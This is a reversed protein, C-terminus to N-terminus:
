DFYGVRIVKDILRNSSYKGLKYYELEGESLSYVAKDLLVVEEVDSNILIDEKAGIKLANLDNNGKIYIVYRDDNSIKIHELNSDLEITVKDNLLYSTNEENNFVIAEGSKSMAVLKVSSALSITSEIVGKNFIGKSLEDSMVYYIIMNDESLYFEDFSLSIDTSEDADISLYSNSNDRNTLFIVETNSDLYQIKKLKEEFNNIGVISAGEFIKDVSERKSKLINLANNRSQIIIIDESDPTLIINNVNRAVETVRKGNTYLLNFVDTEAVNVRLFYVAGRRQSFLPMYVDEAMIVAARNGQKIYLTGLSEDETVDTVYFIDSATGFSYRDVEVNADIRLNQEKDYLFLDGEGTSTLSSTYLIKNGNLNIKYSKVDSSIKITESKNFYYLDNGNLVFGNKGFLHVKTSESVNSLIFYDNEFGDVVHLEDSETVYYFGEDSSIYKKANGIYILVVFAIVVALFVAMLTMIAKRYNIISKGKKKKTKTKIDKVVVPSEVSLIAEVEEQQKEDVSFRKSKDLKELCGSCVDNTAQNSLGCVNCIVVENESVLANGCEVCEVEDLNNESGCRSCIITM